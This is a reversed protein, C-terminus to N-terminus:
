QDNLGRHKWEVVHQTQEETNRSSLSSTADLSEAHRGRIQAVSYWSVDYVTSTNSNKEMRQFTSFM